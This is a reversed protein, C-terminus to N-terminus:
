LLFCRHVSKGAVPFVGGLHYQHGKGHGPDPNPELSSYRFYRQRFNPLNNSRSFALKFQHGELKYVLDAEPNIVDEFASYINGRLGLGLILPWPNLSFKKSM